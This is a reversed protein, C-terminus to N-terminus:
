GVTGNYFDEIIANFKNKELPKGSCIERYKRIEEEILKRKQEELRRRTERRLDRARDGREELYKSYQKRSSGSPAIIKCIVM